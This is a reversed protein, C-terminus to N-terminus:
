AVQFGRKRQQEEWWNWYIERMVRVQQVITALQAALETDVPSVRQALERQILELDRIIQAYGPQDEAAVTQAVLARTAVAEVATGKVPASPARPAEQRPGKRTAIWRTSGCKMCRPKAARSWEVRGIRRIDGCDDCRYARAQFKPKPPNLKRWTQNLVKESPQRNKRKRGHNGM